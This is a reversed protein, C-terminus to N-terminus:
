VKRLKPDLMDRLGDGFLNLGLVTLMIAVGPFMAIWWAQVIYIRSDSLINGWSPTDPPVGVGLFSLAAEGLVAYSFIFSAQVIIPSLCNPLIHRFLIYLRGAGLSREAEVFPYERVVLVSGRVIRAVRPMYVIGLAIIVTVVGAGLVGVMAIAMVLSPFSMLGDMLRMLLNDVSKFYGAFLGILTGLGVAVLVVAAGVTLSTQGGYIVRTFVDRGFDDTGFLHTKSPALLRDEVKVGNPEYPTLLPAFVSLLLIIVLLSLGIVVTKRRFLYYMLGVKDEQLEEDPGPQAPAPAAAQAGQLELSPKGTM